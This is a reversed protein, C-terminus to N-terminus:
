QLQVPTTLKAKPKAAKVKKLQIMVLLLREQLAAM